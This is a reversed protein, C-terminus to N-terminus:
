KKRGYKKDGKETKKLGYVQVHIYTYIVWLTIYICVIINHNSSKTKKVNWEM